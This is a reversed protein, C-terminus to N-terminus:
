YNRQWVRLRFRLMDYIGWFIDNPHGFAGKRVSMAKYEFEVPVVKYIKKYRARFIMEPMTFIPSRALPLIDEIISRRFIQLYNTDRIGKKGNPFLMLILARNVLSAFRRWASTGLYEMREVCLVDINENESKEILERVKGPDLPLDAANAFVYKKSAAVFGRQISAGYNLNILNHLAVAHDHTKVFEDIIAGTNDKSGDNILVIEYDEFDRQFCELSRELAPLLIDEENYAPILMSVSAKCRGTGTQEAM